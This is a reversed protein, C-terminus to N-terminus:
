KTGDVPENTLEEELQKSPSSDQSQVYSPYISYCHNIKIEGQQCKAYLIAAADNSACNVIVSGQV